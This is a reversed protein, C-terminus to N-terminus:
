ENLGKQIYIRYVEKFAQDFSSVLGASECALVHVGIYWSFGDVDYEDWKSMEVLERVNASIQQYLVSLPRGRFMSAYEMKLDEFYAHHKVDKKVVAKRAADCYVWDDNLFSHLLNKKFETM